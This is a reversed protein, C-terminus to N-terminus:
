KELLSFVKGKESLGSIVTDSGAAILEDSSFVGTIGITKIDLSKAESIAPKSASLLFIKNSNGFTQRAKEVATSIIERNTKADGGFAGFKFYQSLNTKELRFKAIREAEGTAIGLATKKEGLWKLLESAGDVLIQKDHGTVNYYTYFLDETYRKLKADIENQPIGNEKLIAEATEQATMGKYKELNVSAIVGYINRISEAVYESVDKSDKVFVDKIDSLLISAM